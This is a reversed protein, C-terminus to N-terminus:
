LESALSSPAVGAAELASKAFASTTTVMSGSSRATAATM